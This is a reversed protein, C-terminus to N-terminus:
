GVRDPQTAPGTTSNHRHPHGHHPGNPGYEKRIQEYIPVQEPTLMARTRDEAEHVAQKVQDDLAQSQNAFRQQLQHYQAAQDPSLLAEFAAQRDHDIQRREDNVQHHLAMVGSWIAHMQREQDPTLHLKQFPPPPPPGVQAPPTKHVTGVVAGAAFVVLFALVLFAKVKSM